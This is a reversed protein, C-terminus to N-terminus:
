LNDLNKKELLNRVIIDSMLKIMKIEEESFEKLHKEKKEADLEENESKSSNEIEINKQNEM